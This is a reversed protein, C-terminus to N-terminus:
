PVDKWSRFNNLTGGNDSDEERVYVNIRYSVPDYWADRCTFTYDVFSGGVYGDTIAGAGGLDAASYSTNRKALLFDSTTHRNSGWNAVWASSVKSTNSQPVTLTTEDPLNILARKKPFDSVLEIASGGYCDVPSVGGVPTCDTTVETGPKYYGVTNSALYYSPQFIMLRCSTPLWSYSFILDSYYLRGEPVVVTCNVSPTAISAACTTTGTETFTLGNDYNIGTFKTSMKLALPADTSVGPAPTGPDTPPVYAAATEGKDKCAGALLISFSFMLIYFKNIKRM